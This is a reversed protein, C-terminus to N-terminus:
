IQLPGLNKIQFFCQNSKIQYTYTICHVFGYLIWIFLEIFEGSLYLDEDRPQLARRQCHLARRKSPPVRRKSPPGKQMYLCIYAYAPM